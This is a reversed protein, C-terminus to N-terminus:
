EQVASTDTQTSINAFLPTTNEKTDLKLQQLNPYDAYSWKGLITGKKILMMAPNARMATKCATGDITFFTIDLKYKEKFAQTDQDGSASAAIIPINAKKCDEILKGLAEINSTNAEHIDKIFLIFVHGPYNLITQTQDIGSYDNLSFDKIGPLNQAEKIIKTYTTDYTWTSDQWPYNTLDFEKKVGDKKYVLTTKLEEPVYDPGPTMEKLINNGVKYALCDKVPLHKLVYWQVFLSAIFTAIMIFGAIKNSFAQVVKKRFFVLVLLLVLLILDKMFSENAQLKICDGFCGCEKINGSFLAYATLFTFFITLLLILYSFLKFRYGIILAIGAVIEFMIMTVSFILAYHSLWLMLGPMFHEKNAWVEFFEEMKYALGSPDNAKILGSFIFLLGVFVRIALLVYHLGKNEKM